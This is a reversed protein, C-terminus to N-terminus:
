SMATSAFDTAKDYVNSLLRSRLGPPLTRSTQDDRTVASLSSTYSAPKRSVTYDGLCSSLTVGPGSEDDTIVAKTTQSSFPGAWASSPRPVRQLELSQSQGPRGGAYALVIKSLLLTSRASGVM